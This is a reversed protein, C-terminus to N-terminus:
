AFQSSATGSHHPFASALRELAESSGLEFRDSTEAAAM